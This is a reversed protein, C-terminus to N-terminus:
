LSCSLHCFVTEMVTFPKGRAQPLVPEQEESLEKGALHFPVSCLMQAWGPSPSIVAACGGAGPAAKLVSILSPFM